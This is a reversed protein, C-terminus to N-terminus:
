IEGSATAVVLGQLQQRQMAPFVKAQKKVGMNGLKQARLSGKWSHHYAPLFLPSGQATVTRDAVIKRFM